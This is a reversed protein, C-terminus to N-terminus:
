YSLGFRLMVTDSPRFDSTASEYELKRGFIYAVEVRSQLQLSPKRELGLVLRYDRYSVVDDGGASRQIAWTGSGFEGAVYLWDDDGLIGYTRWAFRPRPFILELRADEHPTYILGAAPVVSTDTRDLYVIGLAVKTRESWNWLAIGHGTVRVGDSSNTDFDAYYGPMVALDMVWREGLPRIWRFQVGAEYVQPPLDPASPGDLLYLNFTPRILLPSDPTPLPFGFTVSTGFNHIGLGKGGGRALWTETFTIKQFIGDRAGPPRQSETPQDFNEYLPESLIPPSSVPSVLPEVPLQASFIPPLPEIQSPIAPSPHPPLQEVQALALPACSAIGLAAIWSIARAWVCRNVVFLRRDM